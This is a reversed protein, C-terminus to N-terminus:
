VQAQFAEYVQMAAVAILFVAFILLWTSSKGSGQYMKRAALVFWILAATLIIAAPLVLWPNEGFYTIATVGIFGIAVAYRLLRAKQENGGTIQQIEGWEALMARVEERGELDKPVVLHRNEGEALVYIDGATNESISSVEEKRIEVEPNLREGRGMRDGDVFLEFSEWAKRHRQLSKSIFWALGAVMLASPFLILLLVNEDEALRRYAMFYMLIAYIILSFPLIRWLWRKRFESFARLKLKYIQM